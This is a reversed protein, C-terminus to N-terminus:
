NLRSYKYYWISFLVFMDKKLLLRGLLLEFLLIRSQFAIAGKSFQFILLQNEKLAKWHNPLSKKHGDCQYAKRIAVLM